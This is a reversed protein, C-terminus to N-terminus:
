KMKGDIEQDVEQDQSELNMYLVRKPIRNEEIRHVHRTKDAVAINM